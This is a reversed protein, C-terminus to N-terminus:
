RADELWRAVMKDVADERFRRYKGVLTYHIKRQSCIHNLWRIDLDDLGAAHLKELVQESRLLRPQAAM